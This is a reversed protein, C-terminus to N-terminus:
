KLTKREGNLLKPLATSEGRKYKGGRTDPNTAAILALVTLARGFPYTLKHKRFCVMFGLLGCGMLVITEPEPIATVTLSGTSYLQTTDWALGTNLSPLNVTDFNGTM